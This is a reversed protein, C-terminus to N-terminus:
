AITAGGRARAAVANATKADPVVVQTLNRKESPAYTATNAKYYAAIEQDTAAVSAVQEPGIRAFRVVRQEPVMYRARNAAYYRQLDQETPKLGATFATLPVVAAEGEREEL